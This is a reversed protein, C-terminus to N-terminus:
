KKKYLTRAYEGYILLLLDTLASQRKLRRQLPKIMLLVGASIHRGASVAVQCVDLPPELRNLFGSETHAHSFTTCSSQGGTMGFNFNNMILLTLNLNRRCASLLHAGGIGLGGDGMTVVVNLEPSALKIGTAYNLARGHLGHFAHTLFFTDSLGSCGIDSVIAIQNGKLNMNQFAKDLGSLIREHTCGPCFAPPRAQNLLSNNM